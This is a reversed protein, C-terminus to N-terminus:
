NCKKTCTSSRSLESESINQSKYGAKYTIDVTGDEYINYINVQYHAGNATRILDEGIVFGSKTQKLPRSLELPNINQPNFGDKYSIDVTGDAYIRTINVRYHAGKSTRFLDEGVYLGGETVKLERSLESPNINQPNFGDKYTIDVTGDSYINYINVRYHKGESTRILDEGLVFGEKTEKLTRSLEEIKINQPNFGDKYTIDVTGDNYINTINVRYHKGESTRILDEGVCFDSAVASFSMTLILCLVAVFKKM